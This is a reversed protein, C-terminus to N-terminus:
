TNNTYELYVQVNFAIRYFHSSNRGLLIIYEMWMCECMCWSLASVFVYMALILFFYIILTVTYKAVMVYDSIVYNYCYFHCFTQRNAILSKHNHTVNVFNHPTQQGKSLFTEEDCQGEPFHRCVETCEYTYVNSIIHGTPNDIDM